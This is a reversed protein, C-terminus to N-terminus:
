NRLIKFPIQLRGTRLAWGLGVLLVSVSAVGTMGKFLARKFVPGLFQKFESTSNRNPWPMDPIPDGLYPCIAEWGYGDELQLVHLQEPPVLRKV